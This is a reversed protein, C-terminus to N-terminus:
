NFSFRGLACIEGSELNPSPGFSVAMIYFSTGFETVVWINLHKQADGLVFFPHLESVVLSYWM